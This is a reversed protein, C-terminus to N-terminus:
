LKILHDCQNMLLEMGKSERISILANPFFNGAYGNVVATPYSRILELLRAPSGAHLYLSCDNIFLMDTKETASVALLREITQLNEEALAMIEAENRARLRPPHIQAHYYRVADSAPIQLRGGVRTMSKGELDQSTIRPSLDVVTIRGQISRCFSELIHQTLVTKGTQVDGVILTFRNMFKDIEIPNMPNM